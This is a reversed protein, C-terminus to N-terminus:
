WALRLALRVARQEIGELGTNAIGVAQLFTGSNISTNGLVHHPTNAANFMDARFSLQFKESIPFIHNVGINANILGPGNLSNTGCTGFRGSAPGGFASRDYWQYISGIKQPRSLCDAFQGSFPANLTAGSATATFPLGSHITVVTSIQWGGALKSPWGSQVWRKGKGFPLDVVGTASFMHRIDTAQPGRNLKYYQPIVVQPSTAYGLAKSFTYTANV